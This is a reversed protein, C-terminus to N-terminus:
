IPPKALGHRYAYIALEFRDGVELKSFVSSLHHRVTIVSIFLRDAIQQNRLGLGILQVVEKERGTLRTIRAEQFEDRPPPTTPFGAIRAAPPHGNNSAAVSGEGNASRALRFEKLVRATLKGSIWAEGQGVSRVAHILKDYSEDKRVVGFAGKIIASFHVESDTEGTLVLIKTNPSVGVLEDLCNLGYEDGLNIDLLAIDPHHQGAIVLAQKCNSAVGIVNLWSQQDLLLRLGECVIEQDEIILVRAPPNM